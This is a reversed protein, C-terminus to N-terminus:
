HRFHRHNTFIMSLNKENAVSIIEKDKVSGGPQIVSSAGENAVNDLGDRFPFFADSSVVSGQLSLSAEQAKIAAIKVSDVRSMQGAGIGLTRKNKCFVIANSKVWQSIIWAFRLDEMEDKSPKKITVINPYWNKTNIFDKTQVLYGGSISRIDIEKNKEEPQFAEKSILV